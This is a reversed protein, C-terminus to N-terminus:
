AKQNFTSSEAHDELQFYRHRDNHPFLMEMYLSGLLEKVHDANLESISFAEKPMNKINGLLAKIDQKQNRKQEPAEEKPEEKEKQMNPNQSKKLDPQRKSIESKEKAGNLNYIVNRYTKEFCERDYKALFMLDELTLPRKNYIRVYIDALRIKKEMM